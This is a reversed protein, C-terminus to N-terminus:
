IAAAHFRLLEISYSFYSWQTCSLHKIGYLQTGTPM